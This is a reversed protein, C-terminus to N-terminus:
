EYPIDVYKSLEKALVASQNYPRFLWRLPQSPVSTIVDVGEVGSHRYAELLREVFPQSLFRDGGYKFAEISRKMSEDYICAVIVRDLIGAFDQNYVATKDINAVEPLQKPPEVFVELVARLGRRLNM